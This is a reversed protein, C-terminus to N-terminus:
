SMHNQKNKQSLAILQKIKPRTYIIKMSISRNLCTKFKFLIAQLFKLKTSRVQCLDFFLQSIQYSRVWKKSKVDLLQLTKVWKYLTVNSLTRSVVCKLTIHQGPVVKYKKAKPLLDYQFFKFKWGVKNVQSQKLLHHISRQM